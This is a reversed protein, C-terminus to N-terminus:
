TKTLLARIQHLKETPIRTVDAVQIPGGGLGTVEQRDGFVGRRRGKLYFILCADSRKRVHGVLEGGQYVPEDYGVIGRHRLEAEAVDVAAEAAEAFRLAYDPDLEMWRQHVGPDIQLEAAVGSITGIQVFLDLFQQKRATEDPVLRVEPDM